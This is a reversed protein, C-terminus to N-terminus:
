YLKQLGKMLTSRVASYICLHPSYGASTIGSYIQGATVIGQNTEVKEWAKSAGATSNQWRSCLRIATPRKIVDACQGAHGPALDSKPGWWKIIM